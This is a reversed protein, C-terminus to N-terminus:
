NLIKKLLATMLEMDIPKALHGDMGSAMAKRKDEEFANATMAIIPVRSHVTDELSRIKQTAEYGDMVPMQVDMLILDYRGPEADRVMEYAERGNEATEVTFGLSSLLEIAIERNLENDEALLLRKGEFNQEATEDTEEQVQGTTRALAQHLDSAFLPKSILDTVGAARAEHEIDSWDYASLLIIPADQGIVRRIQRVTEIGNMDPMSWDIIYVEYPDGIDLAEEARVVAEKGYMTWESRLGFQRLMKSVSQCSIVDDDVVLGRKGKLETIVSLVQTEGGIKFELEIIFETGKGPQSHVEITGHMMDVINKTISMGLGTGQIGSVTSTRERTFPEFITKAFEPSMGIGTDKVRFEYTGCGEHPSPKQTVRLSVTGGPDTFKISNSLLNLLIQNLRLKDCRINEETVDVTDIFLELQKAHVDAQIINRLGHLIEALDEPKEEITVNGSEIRSMDLVDNILSLLHDSSQAIKSLYDKTRETNDLHASALATFGIIANMPTRIDHSMNNLFVTKARNAQDALDLADSLEQEKIKYQESIEQIRKELLKQSHMRFLLVLCVIAFLCVFLLVAMGYGPNAYLFAALTKSSESGHLDAEAIIIASLKEDSLGAIEKNLVSLLLHSESAKVGMCYSVALDGLIVFSYKNKVDNQIIRETTYSFLIAADASGDGVAKVCADVSNYYTITDPDYMDAAYGSPVVPQEVAAITKIENDHLKRTLRALSCDMYPDTLKYGEKEAEYYSTSLDLVIDAGQSERIRYYETSNATEVFEYRINNKDAFERFIAPFIGKAEGNEFYSYPSLDPDTLVKLTRGTDALSQLYSREAADLMVIGEADLSYYKQHLLNRWDPEKLDLEHIADNIRDMLQTDNKNVAVYFDAADMSEILWENNLRRLSGSVLGDISGDQLADSMESETEFYVPIYTFAHSESFRRFNENKSNGELMGIKLGDYTACDGATVAMNGAKVTFITENTGIPEDSFLFLKEREPTKSVSTVVDLEGKELMALSDSYSLDYGLYDFTWDDLVGIKQFFDYGYGSRTGDDSIEHYGSFEFFGVKIREEAAGSSVASIQPLLLAAMTCVLVSRRFFGSIWKKTM